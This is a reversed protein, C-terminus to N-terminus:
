FSHPLADPSGDAVALNIDDSKEAIAHGPNLLLISAGVPYKAEGSLPVLRRCDPSQM